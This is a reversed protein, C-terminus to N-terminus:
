YIAQLLETAAIVQADALAGLAFKRLDKKNQLSSREPVVFEISSRLVYSVTPAPVFGASNNSMTELTPLYIGIKVRSVRSESKAGALGMTPRVLSISVRNYGIPSAASQDEFWWVGKTDPGLPLFTHNVPTAQADPLVLNAVASM